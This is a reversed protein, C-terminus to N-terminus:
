AIRAPRGESGDLRESLIGGHSLDTAVVEHLRSPDQRPQQKSLPRRIQEVPADEVAREDATINDHQATTDKIGDADASADNTTGAEHTPAPTDNIGVDGTSQKDEQKGGTTEVEIKENSARATSGEVSPNGRLIVYERGTNEVVRIGM